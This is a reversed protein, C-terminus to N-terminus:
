IPGPHRHDLPTQARTGAATYGPAVGNIELSLVRSVDAGTPTYTPGTAGPIAVGIANPVTGMLYWQYTM